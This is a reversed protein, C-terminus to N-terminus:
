IPDAHQLFQDIEEEFPSGAADALDPLREIIRGLESKVSVRELAHAQVQSGPPNHLEGSFQFFKSAGAVDIFGGGQQFFQFGGEGLGADVEQGQAVLLRGRLSYGWLPTVQTYGCVDELFCETKQRAAIFAQPAILTNEGRRQGWAREFVKARAIRLARCMTSKSLPM